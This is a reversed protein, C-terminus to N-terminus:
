CLATREGGIRTSLVWCIRSASRRVISSIPMGAITSISFAPRCATAAISAANSSRADLWTPTSHPRPLLPPSPNTTARVSTCRPTSVDTNRSPRTASTRPSARVL